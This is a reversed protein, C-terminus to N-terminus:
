PPGGAAPRSRPRARIAFGRRSSGPQKRRHTLKEVGDTGQGPRAGVPGALRRDGLRALEGESQAVVDVQQDVPSRSGSARRRRDDVRCHFRGTHQARPCERPLVARVLITRLTSDRRQHDTTGEIVVPNLRLEPFAAHTDDVPGMVDMQVAGDGCLNQRGLLNRSGARFSRKTRSARAALARFWGLMTVIWSMRDASPISKMTMSYTSPRVRSSAIGGSPIGTACASGHATWIASASARACPAPMRCRSM